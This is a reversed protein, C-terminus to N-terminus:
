KHYMKWKKIEKTSPAPHFIFSKNQKWNQPQNNSEGGKKLPDYCLFIEPIDLDFMFKALIIKYICDQSLQQCMCASCDHKVM